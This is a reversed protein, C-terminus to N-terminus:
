CHGRYRALARSSVPEGDRVAVAGGRVYRWDTRAASYGANTTTTTDPTNPQNIDDFHKHPQVVAYWGGTAGLLGILGTWFLAAVIGGSAAEGLIVGMGLAIMVLTMGIGGIIALWVVLPRDLGVPDGKTEETHEIAADTM